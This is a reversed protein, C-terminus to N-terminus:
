PSNPSSGLHRTRPGAHHPRAEKQRLNGLATTHSDVAVLRKFNLIVLYIRLSRPLARPHHSPPDQSPPPDQTSRPSTEAGNAAHAGLETTHILGEM